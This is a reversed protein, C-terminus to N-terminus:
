QGMKTITGDKHSVLVTTATNLFLGNDVTGPIVNIRSELFFPNQISEFQCDYIYNGNDTVFPQQDVTRLKAECGQLQLAYKTKKHGFKLVEVPLPCKTGLTEVLKTEDVIIVESQSAAAVIKERILAGGLGKILQMNPDVEDAGDITVDIHTVDDVDLVTLGFEKALEESRVSTATCTINLGEEKVREGLRKIAYYATSGTGLGVIMGDKVYENVAKEAVAKKMEDNSMIPGRFRIAMGFIFGIQSEEPSVM